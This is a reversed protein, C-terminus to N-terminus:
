SGPVMLPGDPLPLGIQIPVVRIRNKDRQRFVTSPLKTCLIDEMRKWFKEAGVRSSGNKECYFCYEAYVLGRSMWKIKNSDQEIEEKSLLEVEDDFAWAVVNNTERKGDHIMTKVESPMAPFRDRRMLRLLGAIAWNLVGSLESEVIRDSLKKEATEPPFHQTFPVIAFRRWLGGTQDSSSFLTNANIIWKARSHTSIPDRHKQEVQILGGSILIKLQQENVRAPTEDVYALSAGLIGALQFGDLANLRMAATKEHLAQVIEALTSKGNSGKSSLWIHAIQFRCDPILTYGIYEQVYARVEDDPLVERIFKEFKPAAAFPDYDCQIQYTLGFRQDPEIRECIWHSDPDDDILSESESKHILLYGNKVPLVVNDDTQRYEPIPNAGLLAASVCATAQRASAKNNAFECLWRWSLREGERQSLPNWYGNKWEYIVDLLAGFRPEGDDTKDNMIFDTFLFDPSPSKEEPNANQKSRPQAFAVVNKAQTNIPLTTNNDM